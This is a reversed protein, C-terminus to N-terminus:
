DCSTIFTEKLIDMARFVIQLEETDLNTMQDAMWLRNKQFVSNLLSSGEKTLDLKVYRRDSENRQREVL